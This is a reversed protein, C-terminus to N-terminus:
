DTQTSVPAFAATLPVEQPSFATQKFPAHLAQVAPSGQWGAFGQSVPTVEHPVPTWTHTSVPGFTAALPEVQPAPWTQTSPAHLAHAALRAQVGAFTQSAPRVDHLM